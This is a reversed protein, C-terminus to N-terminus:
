EINMPKLIDRDKRIELDRLRESELERVRENWASKAAMFGVVGSVWAERGMCDSVRGMCGGVRGDRGM